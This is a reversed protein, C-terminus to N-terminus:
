FRIRAGMLVANMDDTDFTSTGPIDAEWFEAHVYLDLAAADFTQVFGVGFREASAGNGASSTANFNGEYDGYEAYVTTAGYSFFKKNIGGQVYWFSADDRVDTRDYEREGAAFTLYLGTPVHLTSVSGSIQEYESTNDAGSGDYAYAIAAAIRVSNWEKQFRLAVDFIDDDGWSTSLIFGYISPTDYRIADNRSLGDLNAAVDRWRVAAAGGGRIAFNAVIENGANLKGATNALNVESSGDSATALQGLTVRGFKESEIYWNALRTNIVNDGAGEDGGSTSSRERGVQSVDNSAADQVELEIAFGAKWGPKMAASGILRFRTSSYDNDVVFADSEEGDDWVLLGRNVQGSIELSVKRNGKRATTAELEAVREELDACCDGGLDAANASLTLGGMMLGAAAVVAYLSTTKM